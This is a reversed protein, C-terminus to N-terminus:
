TNREEDELTKYYGYGAGMMDRAFQLGGGMMTARRANRAGHQAQRYNLAQVHYGMAERWANNRIQAADLAGAEKAQSQLLAATGSNVDIGQGALGARQAGVLQATEKLHQQAGFEGRKMSDEAQWYSMTANMKNFSEEGRYVQSQAYSGALGSVSGLGQSAMLLSTSTAGM